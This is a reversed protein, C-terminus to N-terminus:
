LKNQSTKPIYHSPIKHQGCQAAPNAFCTWPRAILAEQCRSHWSSNWTALIREPPCLTWCSVPKPFRCLATTFYRYVGSTICPRFSETHYVWTNINIPVWILGCLIMGCVKTVKPVHRPLLVWCPSFVQIDASAPLLLSQQSLILLMVVLVFSCRACALLCVPLLIIIYIIRASSAVTQKNENSGVKVALLIAM